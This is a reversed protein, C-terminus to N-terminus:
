LEEDEVSSESLYTYPDPAPVGPQEVMGASEPLGEGPVQGTDTMRVGRGDTLAEVAPEGPAACRGGRLSSRADTGLPVFSGGSFAVFGNLPMTGATTADRCSSGRREATAQAVNRARR